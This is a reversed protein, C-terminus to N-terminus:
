ADKKGWHEAFKAVGFGAAITGLFGFAAVEAGDSLNGWMLVIFTLFVSVLAFVFRTSKFLEMM